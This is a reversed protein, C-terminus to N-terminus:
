VENNKRYIEIRFDGITIVNTSCNIEANDADYKDMFETQTCFHTNGMLVDWVDNAFKGLETDKSSM